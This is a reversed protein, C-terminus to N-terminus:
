PPAPPGGLKGARLLEELRHIEPRIESAVDPLLSNLLPPSIWVARLFARRSAETDGLGELARGMNIDIEAREGLALARRYHVLARDPEGAVLRTSGALIWPRSDGPLAPAAALALQEIRSLAGKPDAVEGPRRVLARLAETGVRQLRESKYRPFEPAAALALVAALALGRVFRLATM